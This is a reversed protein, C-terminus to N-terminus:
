GRKNLLALLARHNPTTRAPHWVMCTQDRSFEKPLRHVRLLDAAPYVGLLSRAVLGVGTGAAACGLLTHYSALQIRRVPKTQQQQVWRELRARYACGSSFVLLPQDHIDAASRVPPHDVSTVLVLEEKFVPHWELNDDRADASVFAVDVDGNEVAAVGPWTPLSKLELEVAPYRSHFRSLLAPMYAAAVAEMTAIRFRGGPADVSLLQRAQDARALLDRAAALFREGASNLALRKGMREFLEVGLDDELNKLRVSIGSQVRNLRTSAATVSGTEAVAVFCELDRLDM